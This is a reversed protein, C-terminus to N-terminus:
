AEALQDSLLVLLGGVALILAVTLFPPDFLGIVGLPMSFMFLASRRRDRHVLKRMEHLFFRDGFISLAGALTLTAIFIPSLFFDVYGYTNISGIQDASEVLDKPFYSYGHVIGYVASAVLAIALLWPLRGLGNVFCLLLALAVFGMPLFESFHPAFIEHAILLGGPAVQLLWRWSSSRPAFESVGLAYALLAGLAEPSKGVFVPSWLSYLPDLLLCVIFCISSLGFLRHSDSDVKIAILRFILWLGVASCLFTGPFWTTGLRQAIAGALLNAAPSIMVLELGARLARSSREATVLRVSAVTLVCVLSGWVILITPADVSGFKMWEYPESRPTISSQEAIEGYLYPLIESARVLNPVRLSPSIPMKDTEPFLWARGWRQTAPPPYEVVLVRGTTKSRLQQIDDWNRAETVILAGEPWDQTPKIKSPGDASVLALLLAKRSVTLDGELAIRKEYGFAQVVGFYGGNRMASTGLPRNGVFDLMGPFGMWDNGSAISLLQNGTGVVAYPWLIWAGPHYEPADIGSALAPQLTVLVNNAAKGASFALQSLLLLLAALWPKV